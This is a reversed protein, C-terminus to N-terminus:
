ADRGGKDALQALADDLAAQAGRAIDLTIVGPEGAPDELAAFQSDILSPAMFHGQRAALRAEILAREGKLHIFRLRPGQEQEPAREPGQGVGARLRDRYSRKLASCAAVLGPAVALSFLAAWFLVSQVNSLQLALGRAFGRRLSMARMPPTPARMDGPRLAARLSKWALAFLYLAGLTSMASAVPPHAALFAGLGFAAMVSWGVSGVYLGAAYALGARRGAGMAEALLGMTAPTPQASAALYLGAVLALDSATV